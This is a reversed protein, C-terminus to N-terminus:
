NNSFNLNKMENLASEKDVKVIRHSGTVSTITGIMILSGMNLDFKFFVEEKANVIFSWEEPKALGTAFGDHFLRVKHEGPSVRYEVIGGNKLQHLKTGDLYVFPQSSAGYLDVPRYIVLRAEGSEIADFGNFVPGTAM